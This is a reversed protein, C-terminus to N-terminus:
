QLDLKDALLVSAELNGALTAVHLPTQGRFDALAPNAGFKEILTRLPKVKNYYAASHLLTLGQEPDLLTESHTEKEDGQTALIAISPLFSGKMARSAADTAEKSDEESEEDRDDPDSFIEPVDDGPLDSDSIAGDSDSM